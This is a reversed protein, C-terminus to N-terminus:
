REDGINKKIEGLLEECTLLSKRYKNEINMEVTILALVDLLITTAMIFLKENSM